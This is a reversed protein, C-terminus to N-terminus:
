KIAAPRPPRRVAPSGAPRCSPSPRDRQAREIIRKVVHHGGVLDLAGNGHPSQSRAAREHAAMPAHRTMRSSACFVGICIFIGGTEALVRAHDDSAIQGLRGARSCWIARRLKTTSSPTAPATVTRKLSAVDHAMRQHRFDDPRHGPRWVPARGRRRSNIHRHPRMGSSLFMRSPFGRRFQYILRPPCNARHPGVRSTSRAAAAAKGFGAHPTGFEAQKESSAWIRGRSARCPCVSWRRTKGLKETQLAGM